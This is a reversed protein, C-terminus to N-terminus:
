GTTMSIMEVLLVSVTRDSGFQAIPHSPTSFHSSVAAASHLTIFGLQWRCADNNTLFRTSPGAIGDCFCAGSLCLVPLARSVSHM